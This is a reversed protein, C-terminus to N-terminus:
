PTLISIQDITEQIKNLTQVMENKKLKTVGNQIQENYEDIQKSLTENYGTLTEHINHAFAPAELGNFDTILTKMSDLQKILQEKARSDNAAEKVLDPISSAFQAMENVFSTAQETYNMSNDVKELLSCGSLLIFILTIGLWKLRM